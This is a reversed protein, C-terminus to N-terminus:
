QELWGQEVALNIQQQAYDWLKPSLGELHENRKLVQAKNIKHKVWSGGQNAMNQVLPLIRDISKAFRADATEAAEFELWLSKLEAFQDEPLLGFLRNAATIEKDEQDELDEQAAFAFTDGADIEVVDHILLMNVVRQINISEEAYEALIQASLSIQWSHEASNEHRNNDPKVTTQRYVTKLQELERIFRMQQQLRKM